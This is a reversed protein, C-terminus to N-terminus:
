AMTRKNAFVRNRLSKFLNVGNFLSSQTTLFLQMNFMNMIKIPYRYNRDVKAHTKTACMATYIVYCHKGQVSIIHCLRVKINHFTFCSHIKFMNIDISLVLAWHYIRIHGILHVVTEWQETNETHCQSIWHITFTGQQESQSLVPVCSITTIYHRYLRYTAYQSTKM